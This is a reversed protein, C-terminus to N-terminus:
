QAGSSSAKEDSGAEDNETSEDDADAANKADADVADDNATVEDDDVASRM